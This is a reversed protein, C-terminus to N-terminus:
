LEWLLAIFSSVLVNELTQKFELVKNNSGQFGYVIIVFRKKKSTAAASSGGRAAEVWVIERNCSFQFYVENYIEAKSLAAKALNLCELM